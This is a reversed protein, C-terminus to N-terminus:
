LPIRCFLHSGVFFFQHDHSHRRKWLQCTSQGNRRKEISTNM